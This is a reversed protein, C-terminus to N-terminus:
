GDKRRDKEKGKEKKGGKPECLLDADKAVRGCKACYWSGGLVLKRFKKPEEELMGKKVLACLKM